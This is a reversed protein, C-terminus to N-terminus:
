LSSTKQSMITYLKTPQQGEEKIEQEDKGKM